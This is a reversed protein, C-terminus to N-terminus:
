QILWVSLRLSKEPSNLDIVKIGMWVFVISLEFVGNLSVLRRDQFAM